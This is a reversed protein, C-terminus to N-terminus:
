LALVRMIEEYSTMGTALKKIASERLTTMGDQRAVKHMDHVDADNKIMRRIRDTVELIEFIGTRGYLGTSRCRVCGEGYWSKLRQNQDSTKLGLHSIEEQNLWSEQKCETCIARMLRQAIVMNLTAAILYPKVTLEQLRAIASVTDNTHLTSFVLHGTLSAQVANIATEPDRIEGVMIIDPDQRLIYKLASSFDLDIRRQVAIQNFQELVMEIPDEITTINVSPAALSQLTSYLTTTKGSGTPGTVLVMGTPEHILRKYKKEEEGDFGLAAIDKLMEGTDLVRLVAKEGFATPVCSVRVEVERDELGMKMRGDQPRRREAIDLRSMAKIRSVIPPHISRPISYVNHLVGDIRLRIRAFERKPEVHIDSARQEFAYHLLYDVANVVHRDNAEIEDVNKMKFFQELNFVDLGGEVSAEAASVSKKFGYVETIVKLIDARAAVVPIVRKGTIRSVNEFFEVDYPNAVAVYLDNGKEDLPVANSRRAFPRSFYGTVIKSDLELPDIKIYRLGEQRAILEYILDENIFQSPEHILPFKMEAIIEPPLAEYQQNPSYHISNSRAQAISQRLYSERSMVEGLKEPELYGYGVLLEGVSKVTFPKQTVM